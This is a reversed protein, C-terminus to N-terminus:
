ALGGEILWNLDEDDTPYSEMAYGDIFQASYPKGQKNYHVHILLRPPRKHQAKAEKILLALWPM